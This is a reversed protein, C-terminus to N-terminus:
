TLVVSEMKSTILYVKCNWNVLLIVMKQLFRKGSFITCAMICLTLVTLFSIFLVLVFLFTVIMLSFYKNSYVLPVFMRPLNQLKNIIIRIKNVEIWTDDYKGECESNHETLQPILRLFHHTTIKCKKFFYKGLKWISMIAIRSFATIFNIEHIIHTAGIPM